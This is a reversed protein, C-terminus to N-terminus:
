QKSRLWADVTGGRCKDVGADGSPAPSRRIRRRSHWHDTLTATHSLLPEIAPDRVRAPDYADTRM